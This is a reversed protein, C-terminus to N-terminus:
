NEEIGILDKKILNYYDLTSEKKFEVDIHDNSNGMKNNPYSFINKSFNIKILKELNNNLYEVYSKSNNLVEEHILGHVFMCNLNKSICYDQLYNLEIIKSESIRFNNFSYNQEIQKKGNSYKTNGQKTYDNEYDILNDVELGLFKRVMFKLHWFIEKPNFLYGFITNNNVYKNELIDSLTFLELISEKSFERKWIDLTHIIIVNKINKNKEISKKLIGLSGVLGWSGTLCLNKTNLGSLESFLKSDIANGGSSDGLIITNINSLNSSNIKELQYHKIADNDTISFDIRNLIFSSLYIVILILLMSKVYIKINIKRKFISIYSNLFNM